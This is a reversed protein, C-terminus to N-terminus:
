AAELASADIEVVKMSGLINLLVKCKSRTISDITVTHGQFPHGRGVIEARQGQTLAKHLNIETARPLSIAQLMSVEDATLKAPRAGMGVLGVIPPRKGMDEFRQNIVEKAQLFERYNCFGAFVYCPFLPFKRTVRGRKISVWKEEFPVLAPHERQTLAHQVIFELRHVPVIRIAFYELTM